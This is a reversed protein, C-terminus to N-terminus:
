GEDLALGVHLSRFLDSELFRGMGDEGGIEEDPVFSLHISRRPQFSAAPAISPKKLRKIALIYQACVCKMDQTGRSSPPTFINLVSSFHPRQWRRPRHAQVRGRLRTARTKSWMGPTYKAVKACPRLPSRIGNTWARLYWTM